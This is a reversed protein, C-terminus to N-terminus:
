SGIGLDVSGHKDIAIYEFCLDGMSHGWIGFEEHRDYIESYARAVQWMLYGPTMFTNEHVEGDKRETKLLLPKVFFTAPTSLPYTITVSLVEPVDYEYWKSYCRDESCVSLISNAQDLTLSAVMEIKLNCNFHGFLPKLEKEVIKNKIDNEVDSGQNLLNGIENEVIDREKQEIERVKVVDMKRIDIDSPIYNRETCGCTILKCNRGPPNNLMGKPYGCGCPCKEVSCSDVM